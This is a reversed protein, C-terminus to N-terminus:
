VRWTGEKSEMFRWLANVTEPDSFDPDPKPPIWQAMNGASDEVTYYHGSRTTVEFIWDEGDERAEETEWIRTRYIMVSETEAHNM